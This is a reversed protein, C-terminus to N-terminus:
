RYRLEVDPVRWERHRPRPVPSLVHPNPVGRTNTTSYKRIAFSLGVAIICFLYIWPDNYTEFGDLLLDRTTLVASLIASFLCVKFGYDVGRKAKEYESKLSDNSSLHKENNGDDSSTISEEKVIPPPSNQAQSIAPPAYDKTGPDPAGCHPCADTNEALDKGCERCSISDGKPTTRFEKYLTEMDMGPDPVGCHPCSHAQDSVQDGCERCKVLAM